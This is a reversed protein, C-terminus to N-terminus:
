NGDKYPKNPNVLSYSNFPVGLNGSNTRYLLTGPDNNIGFPSGLPGSNSRFVPGSGPTQWYDYPAELGQLNGHLTFALTTTGSLSGLGSLHGYSQFSLFSTGSMFWFATLDAFNDFNLTATGSIPVTVMLFGSATFTLNAEGSVFVRGYRSQGYVGKGYIATTM